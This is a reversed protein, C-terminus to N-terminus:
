VGSDTQNQLCIRGVSNCFLLLRVSHRRYLGGNDG